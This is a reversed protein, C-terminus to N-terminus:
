FVTGNAHRNGWALTLLTWASLQNGALLAWVRAFEPESEPWTRGPALRNAWTRVALDAFPYLTYDNTLDAGAAGATWPGVRPITQLEVLLDAPRLAAWKGGFELCAEAVARLARGKFALGLRGFEADSLGVVIEPTPLLCAEGFPTMVREGHARCFEQHLKRAQGARIVQRLVATAVADWLDPNRWRLVMGLERLESALPEPGVLMTPDFLDSVPLAGTGSVLDARSSVSAVVGSTPACSLAWVSSGRRVVRFATQQGVLWSPHDTMVWGLCSTGSVLRLKRGLSGCVTVDRGFTPVDNWCTRTGWSSGCRSPAKGASEVAHSEWRERLCPAIEPEHAVRAM